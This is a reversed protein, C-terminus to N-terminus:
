ESLQGKLICYRNDLSSMAPNTILSYEERTRTKTIATCPFVVAVLYYIM